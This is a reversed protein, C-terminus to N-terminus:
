RAGAPAPLPRRAWYAPGRVRPWSRSCRRCVRWWCRGARTAPV